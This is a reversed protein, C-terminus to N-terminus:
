DLSIATNIGTAKLIREPNKSVRTREEPKLIEAIIREDSRRPESTFSHIVSDSDGGGGGGGSKRQSNVIIPSETASITMANEENVVSLQDPQQDLAVALRGNVKMESAKSSKHSPSVVVAAQPIPVHSSETDESAEDSPANVTMKLIAVPEELLQLISVDFLKKKIHLQRLWRYILRLEKSVAEFPSDLFLEQLFRRAQIRYTNNALRAAVESYICVDQLFM